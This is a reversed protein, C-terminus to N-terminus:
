PLQDLIETKNGVYIGPELYAATEESSRTYSKYMYCFLDLIIQM